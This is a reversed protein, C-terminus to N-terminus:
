TKMHNLLCLYNWHNFPTMQLRHRRAVASGKRMQTSMIFIIFIEFFQSVEKPPPLLNRKNFGLVCMQEKNSVRSLAVYLHGPAFEKGCHVEVADLTQGQSKHVTMAWALKLPIQTRTGVIKTPDTRDYVPWSVRDVVITETSCSVLPLGNVFSVVEGRVGNKIRDNINFIFMVKAGIKLVLKENAILNRNLVRKDGVDFAQFVVENGPLRDLISINAYDVDEILPYLQPVYPLNFDSPNLPRGLTEILNLSQDSCQGTSIEKLLNVLEQDDKARFSEDLIVQHPFTADWLRSEFAYKGDDIAGPVPPLQLFDGFAVVQLGEFALESNRVNQSVYYITELTRKSLMSIEDIFLVEMSRWRGLCDGNSLVNRLLHEKTGRCQGIGAFSHITQAQICGYLTYAIGTTCTRAFKTSKSSLVNLVHKALFTKGCGAIGGFYVNQGKEVLSAILRQQESLTDSRCFFIVGDGIYCM